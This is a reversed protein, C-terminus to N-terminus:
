PRGATYGQETEQSPSWTSWDLRLTVVDDDLRVVSAVCQNGEEDLSLVTEGVSVAASADEMLATTQEGGEIDNYDVYVTAFDPM